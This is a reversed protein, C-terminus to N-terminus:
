RKARRSPKAAPTSKSKSKPTPTSKSKPAASTGSRDADKRPAPQPPREIINGVGRGVRSPHTAKSEPQPERPASSPKASESAKADSSTTGTAAAPNSGTEKKAEGSTAGSSNAGANPESAKREAEAAKSYSESRYDTEYFGGGRFLIAGGIGIKREVKKASCKPCVRIPDATISHFVEFEHGCKTCHYEYTPM